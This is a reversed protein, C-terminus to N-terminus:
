RSSRSYDRWEAVARLHSGLDSSFRHGGEPAAVFYLEDGDAPRVAALLSAAGPSAIPGPPLGHVRYTNWPSDIELHKSYLRKVPRGARELAYLVTPDCQLRMGGDLRNHFVRSIRPREDPVSTEREIMSALTVAERLDLGVAAADAKYEAGTIERFRGIMAAVVGEATVGRPFSYTDPFLYGELDEAREDLARIPTPDRFATVLADYSAFGARVVEEATQELSLGEPVTVTHLLVEGARLRRVVELPAVPADFRYEGAQLLQSGGSVSLWNRVLRPRRVVGARHLSTLMSGADLGPALVVDVYEGEWAAHPRHLERYCWVFLSVGALAALVM